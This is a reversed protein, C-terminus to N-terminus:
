IIRIIEDLRNFDTFDVKKNYSEIMAKVESTKKEEPMGMAKKYVFAMMTKHMFGLCSYDIGGRLHLIQAHEFLEEPLQKKMNKKINNVNEDDAPDAFGVSVIIIHKERYSNLKGLTKKMGMVNGAYLAGLYIITEYMNIDDIEDCSKVEINTRKGLEEAYRKTTGYQSGYIIIKM